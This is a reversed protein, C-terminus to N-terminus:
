GNGIRGGGKKRFCYVLGDQGERTKERRDNDFPERRLEGAVVELWKGLCDFFDRLM